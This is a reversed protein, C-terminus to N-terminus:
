CQNIQNNVSMFLLNAQSFGFIGTVVADKIDIFKADLESIAVM